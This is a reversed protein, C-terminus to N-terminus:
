RSAYTWRKGGGAFAVVDYKDKRPGMEMGPSGVPMGPVALGILKPKEALLRRALDAPVHGELVYAGLLAVHCSRLAVPVGFTDKVEALKDDPMDHTEVTFGKSKMHDVWASCCGCSPSKYVTLKLAGSVVTQAPLTRTILAAIAGSLTLQFWDRRTVM